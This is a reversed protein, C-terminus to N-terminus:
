DAANGQGCEEGWDKRSRRVLSDIVIALMVIIGIIANQFRASVGLVNLGNRLVILMFVGAITGTIGGRGERLSTGGLLTAAVAEFEWGAGVTPQGSEVRCATLLGAIGALFGAYMYTRVYSKVINVGALTLAEQNGGLGRINIGFRTRNLLIWTMAFMAVTIWVPSPIFLVRTETVFQFVYHSIYISSGATLVLAISSLINQMGFTAIFPPIKGKGVLLGNVAGAAMAALVSLVAALYIPVGRQAMYVWLVTVFSVQAGLSLDTGQTLVILTQAFALIMLAVSQVLINSLNSFSFYNQTTVSFTTILAILIWLVPPLNRIRSEIKFKDRIVGKLAKASSGM